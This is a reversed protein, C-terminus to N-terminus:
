GESWPHAAWLAQYGAVLAALERAVDAPGLFRLPLGQQEAIAKFDPNEATRRISLALRELAAPPVSAPAAVPFASGHLEGEILM